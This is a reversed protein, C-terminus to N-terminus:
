RSWDDKHFKPNPASQYNEVLSQLKVAKFKSAYSLVRDSFYSDPRNDKGCLRNELLKQAQRIVESDARKETQAYLKAFAKAFDNTSQLVPLQKREAFIKAAALLMNEDANSYDVKQLNINKDSFMAFLLPSKLALAKNSWVSETRNLAEIQNKSRPWKQWGSLSEADDPKRVPMGSQMATFLSQALQENNESLAYDLLFNNYKDVAFLVNQPVQAADLTGDEIQKCYEGFSKQMGQIYNRCNGIYATGGNIVQKALEQKDPQKTLAKDLIQRTNEIFYDTSVVEDFVLKFFQEEKLAGDLKFGHSWFGGNHGNRGAMVTRHVLLVDANEAMNFFLADKDSLDATTVYHRFTGDYTDRLDLREDVASLRILNSFNFKHEDLNKEINNHQVVFIQKQIFRREETLYGLDTMLEDTLRNIENLISSGYCHTGIILKRANYAAKAASMRHLNGNKDCDAFLPVMYNDFFSQARLVSSDYQNPQREYYLSCVTVKNKQNEPLMEEFIKCMGNADKASTSGSGPFIVITKNNGLLSFNEPSERWHNTASFDRIGLSYKAENKSIAEPM